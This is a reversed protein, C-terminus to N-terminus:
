SFNTFHVSRCFMSSFASNPLQSFSINCYIVRAIMLENAVPIYRELFGAGNTEAYLYFM